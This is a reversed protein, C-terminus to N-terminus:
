LENDKHINTPVNRRKPNAEPTSSGSAYRQKYLGFTKANVVFAMAVFVGQLSTLIVFLYWFVTTSTVVLALLGFLWTFGMLTSLKTYIPLNSRRNGSAQKAATNQSHKRLYVAAIVFAIINFLLLVAIPITVFYTNANNETLWCFESEGYGIKLIDQNDLVVCTGVFVGPLLWVLALYMRFLKREGGQSMKPAPLSRAFVKCMHFAIVSMSVFSAMLFYHEMIAMATCTPKDSLVETFNSPLWFIQFLLLSAAFNMINKGPLTQLQPFLIYTVLLFILFLISLLFSIFTIYGLAENDRVTPRTKTIRIRVKFEQCIAVSKNSLIEYEGYDYLSSTKNVYISLNVMIMYEESTYQVITGDCQTPIFKECVSINGRKVGLQEVNERYYEFQEYTKNTSPIYVREQDQLTYEEPTYTTQGVCALPRSTTKAVIYLLDKIQLSFAESFYIYNLLKTESSTTNENRNISLLELSQQPTLAITSSVLYFLLTKTRPHLIITINIDFLQLQSVNLYKALAEQFQIATFSNNQSNQPPQLWSYVYFREQGNQQPPSLWNVRCVQLIDDFILGNKGCEKDYVSVRTQIENGTLSQELVLSFSPLFFALCTPTLKSPFCTLMESQIGHCAACHTNRFHTQGFSILAVDGNSCSPVKEVFPCYDTIKKLCYRRDQNSGPRMPGGGIPFAAQHSLLFRIKETINYNEPPIVTTQIDLPWSEYRQVGNCIACYMNRFTTNDHDLVPLYGYLDTSSMTLKGVPADCKARFTDHPWDPLCRAVMWLGNGITCPGYDYHGVNECTYNYKNPTEPLKQAGCYKTYDTCCDNFVEYCDPDCSCRMKIETRWETHNSCRQKCSKESSCTPIDPKELNCLAISNDFVDYQGLEYLMGTDKQYLSLNTNIIFDNKPLGTQTKECNSPTYGECITINGNIQGYYDVKDYGINTPTIYIRENDLVEYEQPTYVKRTICSLPRSTTKIVHYTRNNLTVIFPEKFHIFSQLNLSSSNSDTDFLIDFSQEPTLLLTSSALYYLIDRTSGLHMPNTQIRIDVNYIQSDEVGFYQKMVTKFDNKTFQFNEFPAFWALIRFKDETGDPTPFNEVCEQLKVDFTLGKRGCSTSLVTFASDEENNTDTYDLNLQFTQPLIYYDCYHRVFSPFCAYLGAPDDCLACEYNKYQQSLSLGSVLAVPGNRCADSTTGSLCFDVIQALCYRRAQFSNPRSPGDEPFEADNSLLFNVKQSFYFHEPPIVNTEIEIPFYEFDDTIHNCKACFYNRFTVDGSVAPIYRSIDSALQISKIPNECKSRIGDHPWDVACRSVMWLGDGIECQENSTFHGFQECVWNFKTISVNSPKQMGCYKTYDTCCDDFIEYCATDCYCALSEDTRWETVNGTCRGLCSQRGSCVPPINFLSAPPNTIPTVTPQTQESTNVNRKAVRHIPAVKKNMRKRPNSSEGLDAEDKSLKRHLIDSQLSTQKADRKTSVINQKQISVVRYWAWVPLLRYQM